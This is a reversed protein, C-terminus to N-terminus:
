LALLDRATGGLIAAEADSDLGLSRIRGLESGQDLLPYDSAFLIRDAGILSAALGFIRDDYLLRSAATDFWVNPLEKVIEPMVGYLPLGGGWHAGIIRVEPHRRAFQYFDALPLGQKGPYEHGVPESVHFLLPLDLEQALRALRAGDDGALDCRQDHPRLEGFGAAGLDRVRRAEGEAEAIDGLPLTCFAKVRDPAQQASALLYDNHARCAAASSWAFGQVVSIDVGASDMGQLLDAATVLKARPSGYIAAFTPDAPAERRAAVEPPFIHTHFDVIM